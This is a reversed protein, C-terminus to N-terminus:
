YQEAAASRFIKRLEARLEAGAAVSGKKSAIFLFDTHMNPQHQAEALVRRKFQNRYVARKEAAAGIIVAFRNHSLKNKLIKVMLLPSAFTHGSHRPFDKAALRLKRQIMTNEGVDFRLGSGISRGGGRLSGGAARGSIERGSDM